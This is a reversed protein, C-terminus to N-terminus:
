LDDFPSKIQQLNKTSVHTYIETTKSSSHGLLEQIYRLDTGNELLHTAFSHRLWHLTVPKVITTKNLAQKLVSQLSQESYKEGDLEGEFLWIAPKYETYYHMLLELVKSSLPAIRDKKGKANRILVLGRKSDIDKLKLNLLESRRLGCSYILSLMARHKINSHANLIAKVEEKSLVNPLHKERKPRMILDPQLKKDEISRFFLKVANVIQNQYSSSFSNALIYRNNFNILDENTIEHIPKHAFYRLFTELSDTYTKITSDGYRRSRMWYKFQKIKELSEIKLHELGDSAKVIVRPKPIEVDDYSNLLKLSINNKTLTSKILDLAEDYYSIHWAKHSQSWKADAIKKVLEITRADFKFKLFIKVKDQHLGYEIDITDVM